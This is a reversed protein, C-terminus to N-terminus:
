SESGVPPTTLADGTTVGPIAAACAAVFCRGRHAVRRSKDPLEILGANAPADIATVCTICVANARWADRTCTPTSLGVIHRVRAGTAVASGPAAIARLLGEEDSEILVPSPTSAPRPVHKSPLPFAGRNMADGEVDGAVQGRFARRDRYEASEADSSEDPWAAEM